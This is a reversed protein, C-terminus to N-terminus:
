KPCGGVASRWPRRPLTPDQCPGHDTLSCDSRDHVGVSPNGYECQGSDGARSEGLCLVAGSSRSLLPSCSTPPPFGPPSMRVVADVRRLIRSGIPMRVSRTPVGAPPFRHPSLPTARRVERRAGVEVPDCDGARANASQWRHRAAPHPHWTVASPSAGSGPPANARSRMPARRLAALQRPQQAPRRASARRRTESCKLVNARSGM